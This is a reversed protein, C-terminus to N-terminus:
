EGQGHSKGIPFTDFPTSSIKGKENKTKEAQSGTRAEDQREDRAGIIEKFIKTRENKTERERERERM